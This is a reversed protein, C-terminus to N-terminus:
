GKVGGVECVSVCVCVSACLIRHGMKVSMRKDSEMEPREHNSPRKKWRQLGDFDM